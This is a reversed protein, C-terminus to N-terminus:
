RNPNYFLRASLTVDITGGDKSVVVKDGAHLHLRDADLVHYTTNAAVQHLNIIKYYTSDASHFVEITVNQATGGGNAVGLYDITIDHKAPVTYVIDGSAGGSTATVTKSELTTNFTTSVM